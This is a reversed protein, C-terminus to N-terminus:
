SSCSVSIPVADAPPPEAYAAADPQEDYPRQVLRFLRDIEGMDGQQAREIAAQLLHNRLVFKPNVANMRAAREPEKSQEAALRQRYDALWADYAAMDKL